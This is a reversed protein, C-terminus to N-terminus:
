ETIGSDLPIGIYPTINSGSFDYTDFKGDSNNLTFNMKGVIASGIDFSSVSSSAHSFGITNAVFNTGYLPINTADSFIINGKAVVKSNDLVKQKCEATANLM